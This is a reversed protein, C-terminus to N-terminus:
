VASAIRSAVLAACRRMWRAFADQMRQRVPSLSFWGVTSWGSHRAAQMVCARFGVWCEILGVLGDPTCDLAGCGMVAAAAAAVATERKQDAAAQSVYVELGNM